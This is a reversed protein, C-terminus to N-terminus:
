NLKYITIFNRTHTVRVTKMKRLMDADPLRGGCIQVVEDRARAQWEPHSALLMLGWLAAVASTEYGALYINKCNDVIFQDIANPGNSAGKIIMQLLDKDSTAETRENVINLIM